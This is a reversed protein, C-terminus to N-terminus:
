ENKESINLLEKINPQSALIQLPIISLMNKTKYIEVNRKQIMPIWYFIFMILFICIYIIILIVYKIHENTLAQDISFVTINREQNIYQLIINHFIINLRFHIQEINFVKMRFILSDNKDLNFNTDNFKADIVKSLNGILTKEELLLKMFSRANRLDEIFSNILLHFGLSIIGNESGMFNQCEKESNFYTVYLKCFGEEQLILFNKYLGKIQQSLVTLYNIDQTDTEYIKKEKKILYEYVPLGFIIHNEDFLYERYGNFLEIINNHYNQM